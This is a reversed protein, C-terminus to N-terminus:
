GKYWPQQPNNGMPSPSGGVYGAYARGDFLAKISPRSLVVITFVCLVTGFSMSLCNIVSMVMVFTSARHQSLCKGAYATLGGITWGILLGVAGVITLVWGGMEDANGGPPTPKGNHFAQPNAMMAVGMFLYILFFCSGFITLGGLIYHFLSLLRLHDDDQRRQFEQPDFLPTPTNMPYSM